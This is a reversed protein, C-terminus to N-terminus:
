AEQREKCLEAEREPDQVAESKYRILTLTPASPPCGNTSTKIVTQRVTLMRYLERLGDLATVELWRVDSIATASEIADAIPAYQSSGM